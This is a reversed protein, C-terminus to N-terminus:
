KDNKSLGEIIPLIKKGYELSDTIMYKKIYSSLHKIKEIQNHAKYFDALFYLVNYYNSVINSVRPMNHKEIEKLKKINETSLLIEEIKSSNIKYTTNITKIPLLKNVIGSLQFYNNLGSLTSPEFGLTFNIPRKWNNAEIINLLVVLQAGLYSKYKSNLDPDIEWKMVQSDELQYKEKLNKSIPINVSLTDWKFPHLSMIQNKSLSIPVKRLVNSFGLKLTQVYWPRQLFPFIVVSVDKRYHEVVQLYQLADFEADGAIFLISNTECSKLINKNYEILWSPFAGKNFANKFASVYEKSNQNQLADLAAAGYQAGIFYYADGYDPKLEIAKEFYPLVKNTYSVEYGIMPISDYALYHLFVGLYYYIEPDNPNQKEAEELLKIAAPYDGRGAAKIAETKFGIPQAQINIFLDFSLLLCVIIKM